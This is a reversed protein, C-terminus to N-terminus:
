VDNFEKALIQELRELAYRYRSAATNPPIDLAAATQAFTLNGWIKLVLVERQEVPLQAIASEMRVNREVEEAPPHFFSAAAEALKGQHRRRVAEARQSDLAASRVCSFLYGVPEQANKRRKWFKIFGEQVADEAEQPGRLYQRAMLFLAARHRALWHEWNDGEIHGV